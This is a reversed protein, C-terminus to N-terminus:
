LTLIAMILSMKLNLDDFYDNLRSIFILIGYITPMKVNIGLIFKMSLQTSDSILKFVEPCIVCLSALYVYQCVTSSSAM